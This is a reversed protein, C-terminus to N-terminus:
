ILTLLTTLSAVRQVSIWLHTQLIMGLNNQQAIKKDQLYRVMCHVCPIWRVDGVEHTQEHKKQGFSSHNRDYQHKYKMPPAKAQKYVLTYVIQSRVASRLGWM